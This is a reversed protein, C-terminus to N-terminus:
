PNTTPPATTNTPALTNTPVETFTATPLPTDTVTPTETITPTPTDSPRPTFSPTPTNPTFGIPTRTPTLTQSPTALIFTSTPPAPTASRSQMTETPMLTQRGPARQIAIFGACYCPLTAAIVALLLAYRRNARFTELLGSMWM